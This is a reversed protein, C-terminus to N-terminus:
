EGCDGCKGPLRASLCWWPWFGQLLQSGTSLLFPNQCRTGCIAPLELYSPQPRPERLPSPLSFVDLSRTKRKSKSFSLIRQHTFKNIKKQWLSSFHNSYTCKLILLYM